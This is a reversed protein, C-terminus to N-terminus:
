AISQRCDLHIVVQTMKSCCIDDGFYGPLNLGRNFHTEAAGDKPLISMQVLVLRGFNSLIFREEAAATEGAYKM